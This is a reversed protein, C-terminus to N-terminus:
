TFALLAFAPDTALREAVSIDMPLVNCAGPPAGCEALIRALRFAALPAQPPPKVVVASGVARAPPLKHALLNLPFNFPSIASIPGVPFRQTLGTMGVARSDVDMPIYEGGFRRAEDAAFSFTLAARDVEGLAQTIPKGCDAPLLAAVSRREATLARAVRDLLDRRAHRPWRRLEGFASRAAVIAADLDAGTAIAVRALPRGDFPARVTEIRRGRVGVGGGGIWPTCSELPM